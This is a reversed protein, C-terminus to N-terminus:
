ADSRTSARALRNGRRTLVSPSLSLSVSQLPAVGRPKEGGRILSLALSIGATSVNRMKRKWLPQGTLLM